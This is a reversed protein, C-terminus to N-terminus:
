RKGTPASHDAGQDAPDDAVMRGDALTIRRTLRVNDLLARDHTVLLVTGGFADLAVELQEIAPLDLHNTPEDLVLLNVERAMLVALSSRTREGPSLTAPPRLVHDAVLGFKALLTRAEGADMGTVDQFVRLLPDGAKGALLEDRAQVVEGVVVSRGLQVTGSRPALRGLITNLLTTKGSGNAGVLAIREGATVLLDLPGLRFEGVDVTVDSLRAVIEGSRGATGIDLRLQWPVRPKDVVTLREIARETRAARGALQETQDMKYHRIFKDREDSKRVKAQGRTAWERERQAREALTSRKSDYEEFREWAHREAAAREDLYAQWGGSYTAARHTFEDLEVVTDVTRALFTRDHSVLVVGRELAAIWRELRDLGDLDLDNTPEDLLYVDFRSLLLAALGVRAAEGGSLTAMPQALLAADLGLDAFVGGIRSAMDAVGLGLWRQLATDYREEAGIQREALATTAADLEATAAASGTRRELYAGVLEGGSRRPEQPLYGVSATPPTLEVSGRDPPIRGALVQLLTSKGVGNPGLLGITEGGTVIVDVADLVVQPGRTVTVSRARLPAASPM